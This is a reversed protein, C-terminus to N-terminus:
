IGANTRWSGFTGHGSPFPHAGTKTAQIYISSSSSQPPVGNGPVRGAIILAEGDGSWPCHSTSYQEFFASTLQLEQSPYFPPYRSTAGSGTALVSWTALGDGSDASSLIAVAQGDPRWYFADLQTDNVQEFGAGSSETLWLGRM